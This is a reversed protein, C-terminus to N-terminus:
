NFARLDRSAARAVDPEDSAVARRYERLALERKGQERYTVGLLYHLRGDAPAVSLGKLFAAEALAFLHHADYDFGLDVYADRSLPDVAIAHLYDAVALQWHGAVDELFGIDVLAEAGDPRVRTARDLTERAVAYREQAIYADGLNVLAAYNDHESALCREFAGIAEGVRELDLYASGLEALTPCARPALALARELYTVALAPRHEARYVTGLAYQAAASTPMDDAARRFPVEFADLDGLRRHLDVLHGYATGIPLSLGFEAIAEPVRDQAAYIGGLRNHTERDRPAARLIARYAHEAAAADGQRFYLDGLYRAPDLESPHAAVYSALGRAAGPLDGGAVIKRARDVAGAADSAFASGAIADGAGAHSVQAMATTALSASAVASVLAARLVFPVPRMTGM